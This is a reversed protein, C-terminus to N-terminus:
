NFNVLFEDQIKKDRSRLNDVLEFRDGNYQWALICDKSDSKGTEIGVLVNECIVYEKNTKIDRVIDNAYLENRHRDKNFYLELIFRDNNTISAIKDLVTMDTNSIDAYGKLVKDYVRFKFDALYM